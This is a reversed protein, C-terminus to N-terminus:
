LITRETGTLREGRDKHVLVTDEIRVGGHGRIYIGPEDTLVNGEELVDESTSSLRPPEHVDLGVGHGLGHIFHDGYGADMIIKRAIADVERGAVGARIHQFAEEQARLVLDYVETQRPTPKGAVVTRTIDSRYGRHVAGVDMIVFDGPRITRSTSVGHPYASRPGSAVLTEFAYWESGHTRMAYEIEAAVEHERVGPEVAEIGAKIAIDTLEAAKRMYAVEERGKVRRLAMITDAAEKLELDGLARTMTLYTTARLTDFGVRTMKLDEIGKTVKEDVKEGREVKKVTCGRSQEDALDHSLPLVWLVPDSDLPIILRLTADAIDLFGTLYYINKVDAVLYGDLNAEALGERLAKIRKGYPNPGM